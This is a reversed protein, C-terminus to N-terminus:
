GKLTLILPAAQLGSRVATDAPAALLYLIPESGSLDQLIAKMDAGLLESDPVTVKGVVFTGNPTVGGPLMSKEPLFKEPQSITASPFVDVPESTFENQVKGGQAVAAYFVLQLKKANKVTAPTAEYKVVVGKRVDDWTLQGPTSDMKAAFDKTILVRLVDVTVEPQTSSTSDQATLPRGALMALVVAVVGPLLRGSLARARRHSGRPTRDLLGADDGSWSHRNM